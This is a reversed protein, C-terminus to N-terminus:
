QKQGLEQVAKALYELSYALKELRREAATENRSQRAYDEARRAHNIANSNAVFVVRGNPRLHQVCRGGILWRYPVGGVGPACGEVSGSRTSRHRPRGGM